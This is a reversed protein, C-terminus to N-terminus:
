PQIPQPCKWLAPPPSTYLAQKDGRVLVAIADVYNNEGECGIVIVDSANPFYGPSNPMRLSINYYSPVILEFGLREYNRAEMSPYGITRMGPGYM